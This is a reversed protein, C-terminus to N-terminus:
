QIAQPSEQTAFANSLSTPRAATRPLLTPRTSTTSHMRGTSRTLHFTRWACCVSSNCEFPACIRPLRSVSTSITRPKSWTARLFIQSLSSGMVCHCVRTIMAHSRSISHKKSSWPPELTSVLCAHASAQMTFPWLNTTIM